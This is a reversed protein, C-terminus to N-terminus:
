LEFLFLLHEQWAGDGPGAMGTPTSTCTSLKSLMESTSITLAERALAAPSPDGRARHQALLAVCWLEGPECDGPECGGPLPFEWVRNVPPEALDLCKSLAAGNAPFLAAHCVHSDGGWHRPEQWRCTNEPCISDLMLLLIWPALCLSSRHVRHRATFICFFSLNGRNKKKLHAKILLCFM